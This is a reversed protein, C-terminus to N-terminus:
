QSVALGFLAGAVFAAAAALRWMSGPKSEATPELDRKMEVDRLNTVARSRGDEVGFLHWTVFVGLVSGLLLRATLHVKADGVTLLAVVAGIYTLPVAWLQTTYTRARANLEALQTRQAAALEDSM